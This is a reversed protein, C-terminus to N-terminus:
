VEKMERCSKSELYSRVVSFSYQVDEQLTKLSAPWGKELRKLQQDTLMQMAEGAMTFTITMLRNANLIVADVEDEPNLQIGKIFMDDVLEVKKKEEKKKSM